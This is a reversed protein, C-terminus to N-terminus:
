IEDSYLIASKINPSEGYFLWNVLNFVEGFNGAIHYHIFLLNQQM